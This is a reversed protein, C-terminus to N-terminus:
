KDQDIDNFLISAKSIIQIELLHQKFTNNTIKKNSNIIKSCYKYKLLYQKFHTTLLEKIVILM